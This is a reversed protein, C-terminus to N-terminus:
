QFKASHIVAFHSVIEKRNTVSIGLGQDYKEKLLYLSVKHIVEAYGFKVTSDAVVLLQTNIFQLLGNFQYFVIFLVEKVDELEARADKLSIELQSKQKTLYDVASKLQMAEARIDYLQQEALERQTESKDLAGRLKEIEDTARAYNAELDAKTKQLEEYAATIKSLKNESILLKSQLTNENDRSDKLAAELDNVKERM